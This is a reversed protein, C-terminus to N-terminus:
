DVSILLNRTTDLSINGWIRFRERFFPGLMQIIILPSNKYGTDMVM